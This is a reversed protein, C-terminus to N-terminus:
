PTYEDEVLPSGPETANECIVPVAELTRRGGITMNMEPVTGHSRDNKVSFLPNNAIKNTCAVVKYGICCSCKWRLSIKDVVIGLQM